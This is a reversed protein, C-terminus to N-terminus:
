MLKGDRSVEVNLERNRFWTDAVTFRIIQSMLVIPPSPREVIMITSLDESILLRQGFSFTAGTKDIRIVSIDRWGIPPEMFPIDRQLVSLLTLALVM